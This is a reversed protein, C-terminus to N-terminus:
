HGARESHWNRGNKYKHWVQQRRRNLNVFQNAQAWSAPEIAEFHAAIEGFKVSESQLASFRLTLAASGKLNQYPAPEEVTQIVQERSPQKRAKVDSKSGNLQLM